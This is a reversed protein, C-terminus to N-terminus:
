AFRQLLADYGLVEGVDNNTMDIFSSLNSISQGILPWDPPPARWGEGVKMHRRDSSFSVVFESAPVVRFLPTEAATLLRNDLFSHRFYSDVAVGFPLITDFDLIQNTESRLLLIVHYDWLIPISPDSMVRQNLMPFSDGTSAVFIIYGDKFQAHQCLHWINEECYYPQYLFDERKLVSSSMEKTTAFNVTTEIV